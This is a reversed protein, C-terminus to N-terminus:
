DKVVYQTLYAARAALHDNYDRTFTHSGAAPDKVVFFLADIDSPFFAAYLASAGPASIPGPPLGKDYYTNYESPIELYSEFIRRDFKLYERQFPQGKETEEITYVVTACSQLPMGEMLRNNFVAAIQPAEDPRRYEREVISALTVKEHLQSVTLEKWTPYIDDLENFFADSMMRVLTEATEISAESSDDIPTEINYTDPFMYGQLGQPTRMVPYEDVLRIIADLVDKSDALDAEEVREAISTSTLGPPITLTTYVRQAGLPSTLNKIIGSPKQGFKLSYRGAQLPPTRGLRDLLKFRLTIYRRDKVLGLKELQKSVTAIDDGNGVTIEVYLQSPDGFASDMIFWFTGAGLIALIPIAVLLVLIIGKLISAISKSM